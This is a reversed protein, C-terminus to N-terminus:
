NSYVKVDNTKNEVFQDFRNSYFSILTESLFIHKKDVSFTFLERKIQIHYQQENESMDLCWWHVPSFPTSRQGCFDYIEMWFFVCCCFIQRKDNAFLSDFYIIMERMRHSWLLFHNRLFLCLSDVGNEIFQFTHAVTRKVESRRIAFRIFPSWVFPFNNLYKHSCMEIVDYIENVNRVNWRKCKWKWKAFIRWNGCPIKSPISHWRNFGM